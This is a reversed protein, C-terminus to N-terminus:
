RVTQTGTNLSKKELKEGGDGFIFIFNKTRSSNMGFVM